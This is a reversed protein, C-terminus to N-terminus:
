AARARPQGNALDEHGVDYLVLKAAACAPKVYQSSGRRDRSNLWSHPHLCSFRGTSNAPAPKGDDAAGDAGIGQGLDSEVLVDRRNELARAM